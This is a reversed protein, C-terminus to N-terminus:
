GSITPLLYTFYSTSPMAHSQICRTGSTKRFLFRAAGGSDLATAVVRQLRDAAAAFLPLQRISLGQPPNTLSSATGNQLERSEVILLADTPVFRATSQQAAAWYQYGFWGLLALIASGLLWWVPRKM